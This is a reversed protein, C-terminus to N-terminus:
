PAGVEAPVLSGGVGAGSQPESVDPGPANL